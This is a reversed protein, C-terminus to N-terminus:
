TRFSMTRGYGRDAQLTASDFAVMPAPPNGYTHVRPRSISSAPSWKWTARGQGEWKGEKELAYKFFHGHLYQTHGLDLADRRVTATARIIATGVASAGRGSSSDWRAAAPCARASYAFLLGRARARSLGQHLMKSALNQDCTGAADGASDRRTTSGATIAVGYAKKDPIGFELSTNRHACRERRPRLARRSGPLRYTKALLRIKKVQKRRIEDAAAFPTWYRSTAAGPLGPGVRCLFRM